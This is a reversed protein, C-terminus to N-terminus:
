IRRVCPDSSFECTRRALHHRTWPSRDAALAPSIPGVAVTLSFDADLADVGALLRTRPRRDSGGLTLLVNAVREAPPWPAADWLEPPLLAYRPGLLFRTDASDALYPSRSQM